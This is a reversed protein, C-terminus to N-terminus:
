SKKIRSSQTKDLGEIAKNFITTCQRCSVQKHILYIPKNTLLSIMLFASQVGRIRHNYARTLGDGDISVPGFALSHQTGDKDGWIIDGKYESVRRCASFHEKRNQHIIVEFCSNIVERMRKDKIIM